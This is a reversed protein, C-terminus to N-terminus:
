GVCVKQLQFFHFHAAAISVELGDVDAKLSLTLTRVGFVLLEVADLAATFLMVM